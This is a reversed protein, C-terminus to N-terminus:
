KSSTKRACDDSFDDCDKVFSSSFANATKRFDKDRAPRSLANTRDFAAAFVAPRYRCFFSQFYSAKIGVKEFAQFSFRNDSIFCNGNRNGQLDVGLRTRYTFGQIGGLKRKVSSRQIPRSNYRRFDPNKFFNGTQKFRQKQCLKVDKQFRNTYVLQRMKM